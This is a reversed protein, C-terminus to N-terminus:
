GAEPLLARWVALWKKERRAFVFVDRGHETYEQGELVYTMAWKYQATATDGAVDIEPEGLSCNRIEAQTVFDHYSQVALDRGKGLFVFDVGRLVVDDAFCENLTATMSEGRQKQWAENIRALLDRIATQDATLGPQDAM